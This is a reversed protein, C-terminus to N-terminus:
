DAPHFYRLIEEKSSPLEEAQILRCVSKALESFVFASSGVAGHAMCRFVLRGSPLSASRSMDHVGRLIGAALEPTTGVMVEDLSEAFSGLYPFAATPSREPAVVHLADQDGKVFDAGLLSYMFKAGQPVLVEIVVRDRFFPGRCKPVVLEVTDEASFLVTSHEPFEGELIRIRRGSPHAIEVM